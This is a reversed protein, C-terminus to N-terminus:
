ANLNIEELKINAKDAIGLNLKQAIDMFARSGEKEKQQVGEKIRKDLVM